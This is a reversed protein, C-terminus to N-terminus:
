GTRRGTRARWGPSRWRTQRSAGVGVREDDTRGSDPETALPTSYTASESPLRIAAMGFASLSAGPARRRRCSRTWAPGAEVVRQPQRDGGVPVDHRGVAAVPVDDLRRGAPGRRRDLRQHGVAAAVQEPDRMAGYPAPRYKTLSMPVPGTRWSARAGASLRCSSWIRRTSPSTGTVRRRPEVVPRAARAAAAARGRGGSRRPSPLRRSSRGDRRWATPPPRWTTM